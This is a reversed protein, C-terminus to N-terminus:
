QSECTNALPPTVNVGEQSQTTASEDSETAKAAVFLTRDIPQSMAHAIVEAPSRLGVNTFDENITLLVANRDGMTVTCYDVSALTNVCVAFEAETLGSGVRRFAVSQYMKRERQLSKKLKHIVNLMKFIDDNLVLESM